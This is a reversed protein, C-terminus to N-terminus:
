SRTTLTIPDDVKRLNSTPPMPLSYLRQVGGHLGRPPSARLPRAELRVFSIREGAEHSTSASGDFAFDTFRRLTRAARPHCGAYDNM